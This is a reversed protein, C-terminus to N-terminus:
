VMECGAGHSPVGFVIRRHATAVTGSWAVHMAQPVTRAYGVGTAPYASAQVTGGAAPRALGDARQVTAKVIDM